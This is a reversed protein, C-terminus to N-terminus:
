RKVMAYYDHHGRVRTGTWYVHVKSYEKSLREYFEEPTERCNDRVKITWGKACMEEQRSRSLSYCKM